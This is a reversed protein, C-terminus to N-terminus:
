NDSPLVEKNLKNKQTRFVRFFKIPHNGLLENIDIDERVDRNYVENFLVDGTGENFPPPDNPSMAYGPPFAKRLPLQLKRELGVFLFYFARKIFPKTFILNVDIQDIGDTNNVENILLEAQSSTFPKPNNLNMQPTSYKPVEDPTLESKENQNTNEPCLISALNIYTHPTKNNVQNILIDSYGMDFPPVDDLNTKALSHVIPAEKEKEFFERKNFSSKPPVLSEQQVEATEDITYYEIYHLFMIMFVAILFVIKVLMIHFPLSSDLAM